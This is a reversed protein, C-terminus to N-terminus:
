ATRIKLTEVERLLDACAEPICAGEDMSDLYCLENSNCDTQKGCKTTISCQSSNVSVKSDLKAYEGMIWDYQQSQMCYKGVVIDYCGQERSCDSKVSCKKFATPVDWDVEASFLKNLKPASVKQSVAM